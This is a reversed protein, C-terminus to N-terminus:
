ENKPNEKPKDLASKFKEKQEDYKKIDYDYAKVILSYIEKVAYIFCVIGVLLYGLESISMFGHIFKEHGLLNIFICDLGIIFSLSFISSMCFLIASNMIKKAKNSIIGTNKLRGIMEESSISLLIGLVTFSFGAFVSSITFLNFKYDYINTIDYKKIFNFQINIAEVIFFIALLIINKLVFRNKM